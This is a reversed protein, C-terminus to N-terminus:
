KGLCYLYADNRLLIQGRSVIPTANARANDDKFTNHAVLEFEPKAALVFTGDHQSIAYINGDALLGSSYVLGPRPELREQYVIKGTKADLCNAIGQKEHVWFIYGDHYVPSVVNSGAATHWLRHTDTVDGSGGAKVAIATNKRGGIVYVIGDHTIASPVVYGKDPIGECTWLEKGTAPDIAIIKQPICYVLETKDGVEVLLPTNWSGKFTKSEWVKEGSKKDLAVVKGNEVSANIIVLDKYLVPSNSSGWGRTNEGVKAHWVQSGDLDLCFVGSKGFFAFLHKGDTALTSSAYGHRSDNGGSYASEPLQPKFEKAWLVKGSTRDLAVVRRMLSSMDGPNGIEEAYGSYCTLYIREGLTIPSSTGLGPLKTRWVVNKSSSWTTPLGSENSTGLGNPGRFQTWDEAVAYSASLAVLLCVISCYRLM